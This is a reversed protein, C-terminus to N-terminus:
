SGARRPAIQPAAPSRMLGRVLRGMLWRWGADPLLARLLLLPQHHVPYRLRRSGDTAARYITAAVKEPGPLGPNTREFYRNLGDVWSAYASHESRVMGRSIFDTRIGGPEVLKVRVNHPALEYQLSETLGEVAWKTAHYATGLPFTIRGGISSINIIVGGGARRMHPLVARTVAALGLVNTDFQRRLLDATVGEFPGWLGYGANNVLVDIRGAWEITERVAPDITGEDNVDLRPTFLGAPGAWEAAAEPRRMSAAVMWGKERFHLAAAKGIGSSSGTILVTPTM